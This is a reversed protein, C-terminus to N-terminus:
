PVVRRIWQWPDVPVGGVRTEWHLHPGTSLGTNGVLGVAQGQKVVDGVNVQITAMHFYASTLGLGHDVVVTNGQITLKQALVVRGAAAALVPGGAPAALDVGGHWSAVPGGNYSRAEGFPSTVDGPAPAGFLGQWLPAATGVAMAQALKQVEDTSNALGVRDPPLVINEVPYKTITVGFTQTIRSSNGLPDTAAVILTHTVPKADAGFGLLGWRVTNTLTALLMPVGDYSATVTAAKSLSVRLVAAQGQAPTPPDLTLTITPPTNDTRLTVQASALNRRRSQDRAEVWLTHLGDPLDATNIVIRQTPTLTQGDLRLADLQTPGEDQVDVTATIVGRVTQVPASILLTPPSEDTFYWRLLGAPDQFASFGAVVLALAIFGLVLLLLRWGSRRPTPRRPTTQFRRVENPVRPEPLAGRSAASRLLQEQQISLFDRPPRANVLAV